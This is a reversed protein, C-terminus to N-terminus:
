KRSPRQDKPSRIVEEVPRPERPTPKKWLVGWLGLRNLNSSTISLNATIHSVDAAVTPDRLVTGALGKGAQVDHMVEKLILTSDEVNRVAARVNPSNTEVVLNLNDAFTNLQQSFFVLNSSSSAIAPSNTKLLANVNGVAVLAEESVSRLNTVTLSLSSLTADNLLNSRVQTLTQDLKTAIGEIKQVFGGASRAVEQLNFPPEAQATDQDNFLPKKNETPVVAIYQDGLFGSQQILFRADKHVPYAKYLRLVVVVYKGSPALQMSKVSGVRVGSMLVDAREKLGAVDVSELLIDYTPRFLSTGKSFQMLLVGTLVLGALVFLGVKKELRSNM